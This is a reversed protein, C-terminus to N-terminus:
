LYNKIEKLESVQINQFPLEEKHYNFCITDLGVAEAGKIDAEYNDGIMISNDFKAGSKQIAQEFIFPNPKKVGTEESNTITNFYHRIGSNLLKQNQVEEFGNTIIHLEYKPNLYELLDQTGDILYNHLPLFNIYDESIDDIVGISFNKEFCMFAEILRARRLEEKNVREERYLKWYKMNIPQYTKLFINIDIDIDFKEFILKFALLSNRDFDWLTHDLDFFIHEIKNKM